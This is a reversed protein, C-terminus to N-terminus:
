CNIFSELSKLVVNPPQVLEVLEQVFTTGLPNKQWFPLKIQM